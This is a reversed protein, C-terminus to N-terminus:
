LGIFKSIINAIIGANVGMAIDFFLRSAKNKLDITVIEVTGNESIRRLDFVDSLLIKEEPTKHEKERLYKEVTLIDAKLRKIDIEESGLFGMDLDINEIKNKDGISVVQSNQVNIKYKGM